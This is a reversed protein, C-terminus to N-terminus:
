QAYGHLVSDPLFGARNQFCSEPKVSAYQDNRFVESAHIALEGGVRGTGVRRALVFEFNM